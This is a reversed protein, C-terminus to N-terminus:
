GTLFVIVVIVLVLGLSSSPLFGWSRSHRWMPLVAVLAVMTLAALTLGIATMASVINHGAAATGAPRAPPVSRNRTDISCRAVLELESNFVQRL